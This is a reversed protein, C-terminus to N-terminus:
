LIINLTYLIVVILLIINTVTMASCNLYTRVNM